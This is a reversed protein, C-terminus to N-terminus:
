FVLMKYGMIIRSLYEGFCWQVEEIICLQLYSFSKKGFPEALGLVLMQCLSTNVAKRDDLAQPSSIKRTPVSTTSLVANM